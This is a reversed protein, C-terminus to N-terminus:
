AIERGELSKSALQVTGAPERIGAVGGAALFASAADVAQRVASLPARGTGLAVALSTAFRDGAGCPDIPGLEAAPVIRSRGASEHLLAGDAGLTVVVAACGWSGLLARAADAAAPVGAGSIGAARSAEALNPTAVATSRVPDAGRPHPDWVLPVEAGRRELAARVLPHGTMGRGYDAVVLLDAGAIAALVGRGVKPVGGQGGEDVRAITHGRARIRTKVSTPTASEAAVIRVGDLRDRLRRGADDDAFPAVLEVDHGDRALLTAALGAGGAREEREEVDVVPVPADPMMRDARGDLDVDLLADGVITVRM